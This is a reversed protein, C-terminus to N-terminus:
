KKETIEQLERLTNKYLKEEFVSSMKAVLKPRLYHSGIMAHVGVMFEESIPNSKKQRRMFVGLHSSPMKAVFRNPRGVQATGGRVTIVSVAQRNGIAVRAQPPVDGPVVSFKMVPIARPGTVTLGGVDERGSQKPSVVRVKAVEKLNARTIEYRELILKTLLTSTQRSADVISNRLARKIAAPHGALINRAAEVGSVKVQIDVM